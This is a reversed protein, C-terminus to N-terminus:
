VPNISEIELFFIYCISQEQRLRVILYRVQWSIWTVQSDYSSIRVIISALVVMVFNLQYM